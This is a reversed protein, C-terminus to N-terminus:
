PTAEAEANPDVIVGCAVPPPVSTVGNKHVVIAHGIVNTMADGGITWATDGRKPVTHVVFGQGTASCNINAIGVGRGWPQGLTTVDACSTAEYIVVPYGTDAPPDMGPAARPTPVCADLGVSLFVDSGNEVFTAEGTLSNGMIGAIEAKATPTTGDGKEADTPEDPPGACAISILAL